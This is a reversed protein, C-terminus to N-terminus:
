SDVADGVAGGTAVRVAHAFTSAIDAVEVRETEGALLDRAMQENIVRLVAAASAAHMRVESRATTAPLRSAIVEVLAREGQDCATLWVARISPETDALKIMKVSLVDDGVQRADSVQAHERLEATFHEELTLARPWRELVATFWGVCDGIIPEICSEKNRFYRWLNRSSMGVADGIQDGTTHDWGQEWFLRAAARSVELRILERRRHTM